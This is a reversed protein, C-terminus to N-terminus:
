AFLFFIMAISVSLLRMGIVLLFRVTSSSLGLAEAVSHLDKTPISIESMVAEVVPRLILVVPSQARFVFCPRRM